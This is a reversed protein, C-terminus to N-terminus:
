PPCPPPREELAPSTLVGPLSRPCFGLDRRSWFVSVAIFVLCLWRDSARPDTHGEESDDCVERKTMVGTGTGRPHGSRVQSDLPELTRESKESFVERDQSEM